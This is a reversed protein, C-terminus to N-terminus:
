CIVCACENDSKDSKAAANERDDDDDIPVFANFSKASIEPLVNPTEKPVSKVEVPETKKIAASSNGELGSIIDRVNVSTTDVVVPSPFKKPVVTKDNTLISNMADSVVDENGTKISASKGVLIAGLADSKADPTLDLFEVNEADQINTKNPDEAIDNSLISLMADHVVDGSEKTLPNITEETPTIVAPKSREVVVPEPIEITAEVKDTESPQGAVVPDVDEKKEEDIPKTTDNLVNEDNAKKKKKRRKKKKKEGTASNPVNGANAKNEDNGSEVANTTDVKNSAESEANANNSSIAAELAAKEAAEKRKAARQRQQRRKRAAKAKAKKRAIADADPGTSNANSNSNSNSVASPALTATEPM